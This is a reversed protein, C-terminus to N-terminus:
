QESSERGGIANGDLVDRVAAALESIGYPKLLVAAPLRELGPLQSTGPSYGTAFLFRLGPRHRSAEEFVALGPMGPMVLDLIALAFDSGPESLRALAETGSAAAVVDYGLQALLRRAVARLADDDEALLIREHGRAPTGARRPPPTPLEERQPFYVRFTTGHGPESYAHIMGEHQKVIGYVVALGLGSGRGMAKTTFFPEFIRALTAADMGVGTDSVTVRVYPGPRAWRHTACFADDVAVADTALTLEGGGPMADRANVCLNMLVQEIQGPDAAIRAPAESPVIVLRVDEGIVRRVMRALRAVLEDVDVIRPDLVQRRSFALLQGTLAAARDALEVIQEVDARQPGAPCDLLVLEATARVAALLNNFDHAIGGALTGVAELKQVARVQDELARRATIETAASLTLPAASGPLHFPVRVTEFWRAAGTRPDARQEEVAAAPPAAAPAADPATEAALEADSRGLLRAVTTGHFAALAENALLYRGDADQVAILSPSLDVVARLLAREDTLPDATRSAAPPM